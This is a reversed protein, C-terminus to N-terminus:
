RTYAKLESVNADGGLTYLRVRNFDETPFFIDTIVVEGDEAFLECSAVDLFLHIRLSACSTFAYLPTSISTRPAIHRKAAFKELVETAGVKTRDSYFAKAAADYGIRYINREKQIPSPLALTWKLVRRCNIYGGPYIVEM